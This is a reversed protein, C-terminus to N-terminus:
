HCTGRGPDSVTGDNNLFEWAYEGDGLTLKLVGAGAQRYQSLPHTNSVTAAESGDGGLGSIFERMGTASDAIARQGIPQTADYHMPAFREYIHQGANIVVDAGQGNNWLERWVGSQRSNEFGTEGATNSSYWMPDHWVALVCKKGAANAQRIYSAVSDLQTSGNGYSAVKRVGGLVNLVIVRWTGVDFTYYNRQPQGFRATGFYADAGAALSNSDQEMNGSVAYTRNKFQGFLPDYCNQYDQLTVPGTGGAQPYVNDGLVVVTANADQAAITHATATSQTNSPGCHSLNGVALLTPGVVPGPGPKAARNLTITLSQPTNSAGTAKVPLTATYTGAALASDNVTLTVTAPAAAGSIAASLWGSAGTGFTLSDLALGNLTGQGSNTVNVTIPAVAAGGVTDNITVTAPSLSITPKPPPPPPPVVQTTDNGGCASMAAAAFALVVFSRITTRTSLTLSM